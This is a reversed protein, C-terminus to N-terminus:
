SRLFSEAGHLLYTLLYSYYLSCTQTWRRWNWLACLSALDALGLEAFVREMCSPIHSFFLPTYDVSVPLSSVQRLDRKSFCLICCLFFLYLLGRETPYLPGRFGMTFVPLLSTFVGAENALSKPTEELDSSSSSPSLSHPQLQHWNNISHPKNVSSLSM